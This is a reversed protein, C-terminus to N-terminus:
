PLILRFQRLIGQFHTFTTLIHWMRVQSVFDIQFNGWDSADNMMKKCFKCNKHSEAPWERKKKGNKVPKKRNYQRKRQGRGYQPSRKQTSRKGKLSGQQKKGSGVVIRRPGNSKKKNKSKAPVKSVTEDIYEAPLLGLGGGGGIQVNPKMTFGDSPAKAAECGVLATNLFSLKQLVLNIKWKNFSAKWKLSPLLPKM